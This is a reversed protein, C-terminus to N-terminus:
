RPQTKKKVAAAAVVRTANAVTVAVAAEHKNEEEFERQIRELLMQRTAKRKKCAAQAEKM